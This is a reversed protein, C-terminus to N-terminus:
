LLTDEKFSSDGGPPHATDCRHNTPNRRNSGHNNPKNQIRLIREAPSGAGDSPVPIDAIYGLSHSSHPDSRHSSLHHGSREPVIETGKARWSREKPM